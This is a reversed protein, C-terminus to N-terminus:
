SRTASKKTEFSSAYYKGMSKNYKDDFNKFRMDEQIENFIFKCLFKYKTNIINISNKVSTVKLTVLDIKKSVYVDDDYFNNNIVDLYYRILDRDLKSNLKKINIPTNPLNTLILNKLEQDSDSIGIENIKKIALFKIKTFNKAIYNRMDCIILLEALIEFFDFIYLIESESRFYGYRYKSKFKTDFSTFFSFNNNKTKIEVIYVSTDTISDRHRSSFGKYFITNKAIQNFTEKIEISINLFELKKNIKLIDLKTKKLNKKYFSVLREFALRNPININTRLIDKFFNLENNAYDINDNKKEINYM